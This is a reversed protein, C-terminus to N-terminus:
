DELNQRERVRVCIHKMGERANSFWTFWRDSNLRGVRALHIRGMEVGSAGTLRELLVSKVFLGNNNSSGVYCSNTKWEMEEGKVAMHGM